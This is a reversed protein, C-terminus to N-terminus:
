SHRLSTVQQRVQNSGNNKAVRLIVVTAGYQLELEMVSGVRGLMEM